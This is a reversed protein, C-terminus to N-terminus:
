DQPQGDVEAVGALPPVWSLRRRVWIQRWPRGLEARQKLAGVRLSYSGPNEVASSYIPGGCDGCFAHVRKTGSDATKLYTRPQGRLLRFGGAPAPINSRFASGSQMQCDACHCIVIMGPAVEAEYAIAGCHCQGEVKM